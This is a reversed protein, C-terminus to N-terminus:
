PSAQQHSVRRLNEDAEQNLARMKRMAVNWQQDKLLEMIMNYKWVGMKTDFGRSALVKLKNNVSEYLVKMEAKYKALQEPSYNDEHEQHEHHEEHEHREHEAAMQMLQTMPLSSGSPTSDKTASTQKTAGLAAANKVMQEQDKLHGNLASLQQTVQDIQDKKASEEVQDFMRQFITVNTGKQKLRNIRELAMTREPQMPGPVVPSDPSQAEVPKSSDLVLSSLLDKQSLQGAGFMKVEARRVTVNSYSDSDFNFFTCKCRQPGTPLADFVTKSLLVAQIKCESDTAGSKRQTTISIEDGSITVSLNFSPDLVKTGRLLTVLDTNAAKPSPEAPTSKASGAGAGPGSPAGSSEAARQALLNQDAYVPTAFLSWGIYYFCLVSV